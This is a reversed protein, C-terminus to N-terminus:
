AGSEQAEGVLFLRERVITRATLLVGALESLAALVEGPRGVGREPDFRTQIMLVATGPPGGPDTAVRVDLVLPRLDYFVARGGKDRSRPLKGARLLDACSTALTGLGSVADARDALGASGQDGTADGDRDAASSEMRRAAATVEVRYEAATVQAPLPPEGMWVDYLDVLEHGTPLSGALRGRVEAMPRRDDLFLDVLEREAAMGVSLPAAFVLRPRTGAIGVRELPLGSLALSAEWAALQDRQPL